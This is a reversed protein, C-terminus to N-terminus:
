CPAHRRRVPASRTALRCCRFSSRGCTPRVAERRRASRPSGSTEHTRVRRSSTFRRRRGSAATLLMADYLTARGSRSEDSGVAQWLLSEAAKKPRIAEGSEGGAFRPEDGLALRFAGHWNNTGGTAIQSSNVNTWAIRMTGDLVIYGERDCNGGAVNIEFEARGAVRHM